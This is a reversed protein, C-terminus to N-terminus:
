YDYQCDHRNNKKHLLTFLCFHAAILLVPLILISRFRDSNIGFLLCFSHALWLLLAYTLRLRLGDALYFGYNDVLCSIVKHHFNVFVVCIVFLMLLKNYFLM